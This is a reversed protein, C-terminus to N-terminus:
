QPWSPSQRPSRDSCRPRSGTLARLEDVWGLPSAWRLWHLTSSYAIIRMLYAAGSVAAALVAAQRRAPQHGRSGRRPSAGIALYSAATVAWLTLLGIGLGAMAGVAARLRTVPGALLEWGDAEEEGCLLRTDALLGWVAGTIIGFLCGSPTRPWTVM